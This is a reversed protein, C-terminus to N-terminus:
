RLALSFPEPKFCRNGLKSNPRGSTAKEVATEQHEGVRVSCARIFM